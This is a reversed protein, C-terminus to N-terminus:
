KCKTTTVTTIKSNPTTTTSTTTKGDVERRDSGCAEFTTSSGARTVTQGGGWGSTITETITSTTTCEECRNCGCLSSASLM